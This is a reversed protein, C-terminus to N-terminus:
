FSLRRQEARAVVAILKLDFERAPADRKYFVAPQFEKFRGM